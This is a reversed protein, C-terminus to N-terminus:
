PGRWARFQELVVALALDSADNERDIALAAGAELAVRVLLDGPKGGLVAVDHDREAADVRGLAAPCLLRAPQHLIEADLAELEM